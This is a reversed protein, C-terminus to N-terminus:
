VVMHGLLGVGLCIDRPFWFIFSVYIGNNIAASTVIPLVHFYGLHGNVSSYIFLNHYM